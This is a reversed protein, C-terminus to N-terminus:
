PNAERANESDNGDARGRRSERPANAAAKSRTYRPTPIGLARLWRYVTGPSVRFQKAAATISGHEDRIVSILHRRLAAADGAFSRFAPYGDTTDTRSRLLCQDDLAAGVDYASLRGPEDALGIACEVVHRLERVNGPWHHAQLVAMAHSSVQLEWSQSSLRAFHYVLEPIDERREALPPVRIVAARLRYYFDERFRGARVLAELDANTAALTRFQSQADRSAGVPRFRGLDIARLLKVQNVLSLDGIEDLFLTGDDAEALHGRKDRVADTFAGRVHGFLADEFMSDAIACANVDVFNGRRGSAAHLARAVLEKGAGTPGTVLVPVGLRAVQAIRARLRQMAHSQGILMSGFPTDSPRTVASTM